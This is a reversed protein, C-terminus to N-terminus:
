NQKGQRSKEARSESLLHVSYDAPWIESSVSLDTKSFVLHGADPWPRVWQGQSGCTWDTAVGVDRLLPDTLCVALGVARAPPTHSCDNYNLM